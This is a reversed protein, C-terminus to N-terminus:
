NRSRLYLVKADTVNGRRVPVQFISRGSGLSGLLCLTYVDLLLKRYNVLRCSFKILIWKNV